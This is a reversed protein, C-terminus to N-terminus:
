IPLMRIEKPALFRWKGRSLNKKTLGAFSVRDLKEVNYGLTTFLRRVIKNKGSHIEVGIKRKDNEELYAVKDAIMLGDELEVGSALKEMDNKTLPKDLEVSYIKSIKKSPHILKQALDGDNTLLLVGTTNRDLRGVPFVKEDTAKELLHMVTKRNQPDKTTTIYDKPKNLLIYVMKEISLPKGKFTVKDGPLIQTGLEKIVKGNVEVLGKQILEDAKRRSAVGAMSLYKNLRIKKSDEVNNKITGKSYKKM